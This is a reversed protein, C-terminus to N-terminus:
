RALEWILHQGCKPCYEPQIQEVENSFVVGCSPCIPLDTIHGSIYGVQREFIVKAPVDKSVLKQLMKKPSCGTGKCMEHNRCNECMEILANQSLEKNMM